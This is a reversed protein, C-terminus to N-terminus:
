HSPEAIRTACSQDIVCDPVRLAVPGLADLLPQDLRGSRVFIVLWVSRYNPAPFYATRAGPVPGDVVSGGPGPPWSIPEGENPPPTTTVGLSVECRPDSLNSVLELNGHTEFAAEDGCVYEMVPEGTGPVSGLPITIPYGALEMTITSGQPQVSSRNPAIAAPKHTAPENSAALAVAAIAGVALTPATVLAAVTRRRHTRHRRRAAAALYTPARLDCAVATYADRLQATLDDDTLMM